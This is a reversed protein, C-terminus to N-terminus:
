SNILIFYLSKSNLYICQIVTPQNKFTVVQAAQASG